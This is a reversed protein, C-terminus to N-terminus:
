RLWSRALAQVQHVPCPPCPPCPARTLCQRGRKTDAAPYASIAIRRAHAKGEQAYICIVALLEWVLRAV